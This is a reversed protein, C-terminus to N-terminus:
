RDTERLPLGVRLVFGGDDGRRADITGGFLSVRERIGALGTGSGGTAPGAGGPPPPGNAVEIDIRTTGICVAVSTAAGMAYRRANTLGEQVIRYVTLGLAASVRTPDGVVSVTPCMGDHSLPLALRDLDGIGPPPTLTEATGDDRLLALLRSLDAVAERGTDQAAGLAQRVISEDQLNAEAAAVQVVMLSVGHGIIDHLERALRNREDAVAARADAEAALEARLVQETLQGVEFLRRRLLRSPVAIISTFLVIYAADDLGEGLAVASAALGGVIIVQCITFTRTDAHLALSSIAVVLVLLLVFLDDTRTGLLPGAMLPLCAIVASPGPRRRRWALPVTSLVVSAVYVARNGGSGGFSGELLGGICLVAALGADFRDAQRGTRTVVGAVTAGM